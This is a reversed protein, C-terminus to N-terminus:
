QELANWLERREEDTAGKQWETREGLKRRSVRMSRQGSGAIIRSKKDTVSAHQWGPYSM